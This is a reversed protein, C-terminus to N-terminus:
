YGVQVSLVVSNGGQAGTQGAIPGLFNKSRAIYDVKVKGYTNKSPNFVYNYGITTETYKPSFDGGANPGTTPKYPNVTGYYDDGSNYNFMDYRAAIQHHGMKYVGTIEYAQFKQDLHERSNTASVTTAAGFLTPFRRGILGTAFEADFHWSDNNFAYFLGGTTTKDRNDLINQTTVGAATWNAPLTTVTVATATKLNTEGTRYYVGFRHAATYSGDFRFTYDKQANQDVATKGATGDDTSGNSIAVNVNGKFGDAKGYGYAAWVGRDRKEGNIRSIQAREFFYIDRASLVTSEYTTPMKFQGAKVTIGTDKPTWTIVWDQLASGGATTAASAAGSTNTLNPDFMMYGAWEDSIKYNCYIEARKISFSNEAFRSDMAYYNPAVTQGKNNRLNSDLMQTYWFETLINVKVDQAQAFGAAALVAAIGVIRSIRM